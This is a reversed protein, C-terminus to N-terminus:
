QNHSNHLAYMYAQINYTEDKKETFSNAFYEGFWRLAVLGDVHADEKDTEALSAEISEYRIRNPDV